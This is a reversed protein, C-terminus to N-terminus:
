VRERCSARGIERGRPRPACPGRRQRLAASRVYTALDQHHASFWLGNYVLEAYEQAVRAKFRIVEKLDSSCVDSSWDGQLRTHRRRSSFFLHRAGLGDDFARLRLSVVAMYAGRQDGVRSVSAIRQRGTM